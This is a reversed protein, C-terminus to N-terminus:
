KEKFGEPVAVDAATVDTSVSQLEQYITMVRSHGKPLAEADGSAQDKEKDKNKQMMKKALFGGLGTPTTPESSSTSSEDKPANPDEVGDITMTTQVPTGDVKEGEVHVRKMADVLMPYMAAAAAM